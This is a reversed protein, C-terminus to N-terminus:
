ETVEDICGALRLQALRSLRELSLCEGPEPAAKNGVPGGRQVLHVVRLVERATELGEKTGILRSLTSSAYSLANWLEVLRHHADAAFPAAESGAVLFPTAPELLLHAPGVHGVRYVFGHVDLLEGLSFVPWPEHSLAVPPPGDELSIAPPGPETPRDSATLEEWTEQTESARRHREDM